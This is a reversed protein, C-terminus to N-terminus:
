AQRDTTIDGKLTDAFWVVRQPFPIQIGEKELAVKIKWLMETYVGYWHTSPAWMRVKLNVSSNGLEEVFVQPAPNKLVLPHSELLNTIIEKAQDADDRYRIGVSYSFRRAGHAVYNQINSSFVKENPLRTYIGDYTRITTSLIRVDEVIGAVDDINVGDGIKIPKEIILFLGSILNSVVTQSAFGIVIGMIGGAVLLGSLSFGITSMAIVFGVFVITYYVLKEMNSLTNKPVREKMIRRINTRIVRAIVIAAVIILVFQAVEWVKPGGTGLQYNWVDQLAGM